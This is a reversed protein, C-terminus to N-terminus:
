ERRLDFLANVHIVKVQRTYMSFRSNEVKECKCLFASHVQAGLLSGKKCVNKVGKQRKRKKNPPCYGDLKIYLRRVRIFTSLPYM